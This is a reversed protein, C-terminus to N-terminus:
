DDYDDADQGSYQRMAKLAKAYIEEQRQRSALEEIKAQTLLNEHRLREQELKERTSGLKLFHTIVQASATGEEIQKQALDIAKSVIQNEIGERTTAAPRSKVSKSSTGRRTTM